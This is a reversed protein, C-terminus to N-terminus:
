DRLEIWERNKEQSREILDKYKKSYKENETGTCYMEILAKNIATRKYDQVM